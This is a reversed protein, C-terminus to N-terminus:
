EQSETKTSGGLRSVLSNIKGMGWEIVKAGNKSRSVIYLVTVLLCLWAAKNPSDAFWRPAQEDIAATWAPVLIAKDGESPEWHPGHTKALGSLVLVLIGEVTGPTIVHAIGPNLNLPPAGVPPPAEASVGPAGGYKEELSAAVVEFEPPAPPANTETPESSIIETPNRPLTTVSAIKERLKELVTKEAPPQDPIIEVPPLEVKPAPPAPPLITVQNKREPKPVVKKKRGSRGKKGAM